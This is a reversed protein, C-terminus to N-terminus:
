AAFSLFCTAVFLGLWGYLLARLPLWGREALWEDCRALGDAFFLALPPMVVLGYTAKAQAFYPLRLSLYLLGFLVAYALTALLSFAARRRPDGDRLAM